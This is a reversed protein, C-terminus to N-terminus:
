GDLRDVTDLGPSRPCTHMTIALYYTGQHSVSATRAQVVALPIDNAGAVKFIM